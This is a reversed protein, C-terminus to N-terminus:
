HPSLGALERTTDKPLASLPIAEVKLYNSQLLHWSSKFVSFTEESYGPRPVKVFLHTGLGLKTLDSEFVQTRNERWTTALAYAAECDSYRDEMRRDLWVLPSLFNTKVAERSSAWMLPYQTSCVLFNVQQTRPCPV